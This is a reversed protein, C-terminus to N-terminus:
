NKIIFIPIPPDKKWNYFFTALVQYKEDDLTKLFPLLADKEEYGSDGGYYVSVCMLGGRKLLDLGKEIAIKTSEFRTYISHDGKPLYGLNFVICDVSEKEAYEDMRAHSALVTRAHLNRSELLQNTSDIASQQIDFAIVKGNEGVTECLFATDYGRGATADICFGGKKVYASIANHVLTLANMDVERLSLVM